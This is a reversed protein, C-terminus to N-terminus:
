ILITGIFEKNGNLFDKITTPNKGELQVEELLLCNYGTQVAAQNNVPFVTGMEIANTQQMIVKAKLIKLIRGSFTTFSSPWPYYAKIQRSITDAPKRWDIRGDEKKIIQTYTAKEHDQQQIPIQSQMWKPIIEVLLESGIKALKEQLELNNEEDQIHTSKQILIPGHDIQNDMLMISTGTETDGNLIATQVPSPGRYKPLLSPHVNLCGKSPLALTKKSLIKGYAAVIFLDPTPNPIQSLFNEDLKEPQLVQISYKQAVIKVPPATPIQNRGSPKDTETVIFDPRLGNKILEELVIAGFEPTGFFAFKMTLKYCLRNTKNLKLILM